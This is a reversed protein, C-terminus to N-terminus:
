RKKRLMLNVGLLAGIMGIMVGSFFLIPRSKQVKETQEAQVLLDDQLSATTEQLKQIEEKMSALDEQMAASTKESEELRQEYASLQLSYAEILESAMEQKVEPEIDIDSDTVNSFYSSLTELLKGGEEGATQLGQKFLETYDHLLSEWGNGANSGNTVFENYAKCAAQSMEDQADACYTQWYDTDTYDPQEAQIRVTCVTLMLCITVANFFKKM